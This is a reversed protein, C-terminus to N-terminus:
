APVAAVSAVAGDRALQFSQKWSGRALTNTVSKVFYLGDYTLGAGRVGVLSHPTLPQGYVAVNLAGSAGVPDGEGLGALAARFVDAPGFRETDLKRMRRPVFPRASLPPKLLGVDPVPLPVPIKVGPLRTHVVPLATANADFSFSIQEVNAGADLDASLAPQPRGIRAQPGFYATSAGPVPGPTVTFVYGAERALQEIYARDTGQHHRYSRTPISPEFSIPPVVVPIVGLAAYKALAALVVVADPMGPYPLGTLDIVDMYTSLDEGTITLKAAGGPVAPVLDQRTIPGDALVHPVGNLTAVVIVRVMPDFYGAPLLATAIPSTKSLQLTLQFGSRGGVTQTTQVTDVADIVAPPAPVPVGPGVRLTLTVGELSAM